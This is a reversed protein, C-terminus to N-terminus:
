QDLKEDDCIVDQYISEVLIKSNVSKNDFIADALITQLTAYQDKAYKDM